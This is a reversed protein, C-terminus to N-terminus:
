KCERDNSDFIHIIYQLLGREHERHALLVFCSVAFLQCERQRIESLDKGAEM